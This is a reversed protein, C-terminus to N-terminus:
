KEEGEEMTEQSFRRRKAWKWQSASLGGSPRQFYAGMGRLDGKVILDGDQVLPELTQGAEVMDRRCDTALKQINLLPLSDGESDM